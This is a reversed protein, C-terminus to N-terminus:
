RSFRGSCFTKKELSKSKRNPLHLIAIVPYKPLPHGIPSPPWPPAPARWPSRLSTERGFDDEVGPLAPRSDMGHLLPGCRGDGYLLQRLGFRSHPRNLKQASLCDASQLLTRVTKKQQGSPAPGSQFPIWTGSKKNQSCEGRRNRVTQIANKKPLM